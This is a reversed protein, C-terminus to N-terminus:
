FKFCFRLHVNTLVTTTKRLGIGYLTWYFIPNFCFCPKAAQFYIFYLWKKKFPVRLSWKKEKNLIIYPNVFDPSYWHQVFSVQLSIHTASFGGHVALWWEDIHHYTNLLMDSFCKNKVEQFLVRSLTLHVRTYWDQESWEAVEWTASHDSCLGASLLHAKWLCTQKYHWLYFFFSCSCSAADTIHADSIINTHTFTSDFCHCLNSNSFVYAVM